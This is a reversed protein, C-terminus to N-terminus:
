KGIAQFATRTLRRWNLTNPNVLSSAQSAETSRLSKRVSFMYALQIRITSDDQVTSRTSPISVVDPLQFIQCRPHLPKQASPRANSDRRRRGNSKNRSPHFDWTGSVNWNPGIKSTQANETHKDKVLKRTKLSYSYESEGAEVMYRISKYYNLKSM